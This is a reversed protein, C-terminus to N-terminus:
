VGSVASAVIAQKRRRTSTGRVHLVWSEVPVGTTDQIKVALELTPRRHGKVFKSLVPRSIRLIEALESQNHRTRELWSILQERGTKM